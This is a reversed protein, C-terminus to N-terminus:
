GSDFQEFFLRDDSFHPVDVVAEYVNTNGSAIDKAVVNLHYRGPALSVSQQWIQKQGKYNELMDRPADVTLTPEFTTIPRRTMSTVRGFVNIAM